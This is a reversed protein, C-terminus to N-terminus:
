DRKKSTVMDEKRFVLTAQLLAALYFCGSTLKFVDAPALVDTAYTGTVVIANLPLRFINLIGGQLADPVYKSRLTGALPMFMGVCFEVLMFSAIIMKFFSGSGDGLSLCLAPVVMSLSALLYVLSASIEASNAKSVFYKSVFTQFPPFVIGGCSIAMMLASFVCGTPLGGPPDLSLLTPVWM